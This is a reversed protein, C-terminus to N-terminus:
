IGPAIMKRPDLLKTIEEDSILKKELLVERLTRGSVHAEHAVKAATDYGIKPTLSTVLM